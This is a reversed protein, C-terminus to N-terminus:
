ENLIYEKLKREIYDNFEKPSNQWEPHPQIGLANISPFWVVENVKDYKIFENHEDVGDTGEASALVVAGSSPLMMQHHSSNCQIVEDGEDHLTIHHSRGHKHIHQALTGGALACVLQAGRCIAIIPIGLDVATEVYQKELVDRKSIHQSYCYMNPKQNYLFPCIDEGGWLILADAKHMDKPNTFFMDKFKHQWPNPEYFDPNFLKMRM